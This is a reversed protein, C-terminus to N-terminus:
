SAAITVALTPVATVPDINFGIELGCGDGTRFSFTPEPSAPDRSLEWAQTPYTLRAHEGSTETRLELVREASVRRLCADLVKLPLRIAWERANCDLLRLRVVDSEAISVAAIEAIELEMASSDRQM